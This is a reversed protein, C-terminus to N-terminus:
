CAEQELRWNSTARRRVLAWLALVGFLVMIQYIPLPHLPVSILDPPLLAGWHWYIVGWTSGTPRGWGAGTLLDGLAHLAAGILVPPVVADLLAALPVATRRAAVILVLGGGLLVDAFSGYGNGVLLLDRPFAM